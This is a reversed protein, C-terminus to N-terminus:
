SRSKPWNVEGRQAETDKISWPTLALIFHTLIERNPFYILLSDCIRLGAARSHESAVSDTIQSNGWGNFSRSAEGPTPPCSDPPSSYLPLPARLDSGAPRSTRDGARPRPHPNGRPARPRGSSASTPASGEWSGRPMGLGPGLQPVPPILPPPPPLFTM